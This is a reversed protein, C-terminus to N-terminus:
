SNESVGEFNASLFRKTADPLPGAASDLRARTEAPLVLIPDQSPEVSSMWQKVTLVVDSDDKKAVKLDSEDIQGSVIDSRRCFRWLHNAHPELHTSVLGSISIGSQAFWTQFNWTNPIIEVILERKLASTMNKSMYDQLDSLDEISDAQKILSSLTSFRQDLENKTHSVQLYHCEISKFVKGTLYSLFLGFHQNKSERTTNDVQVILNDPLCRDPHLKRQALDLCRALLKCNMNSDKPASTPMLFYIEQLGWTIAGTVHLAPRWRKSMESTGALTKHRPLCFKAQDMGDLMIKMFQESKHEPKFVKDQSAQKNTRNNVSRDQRVRELHAHREVDVQDRDAKTSCQAREESLRACINCKTGEAVDKFPLYKSWRKYSRQFTSRSVQGEKPTDHVYFEFFDLLKTFNVYKKPANRGKGREVNLSIGYLPHSEDEVLENRSDAELVECDDIALPEALHMYVDLFWVDLADSQKAERPLRPAREPLTAHGTRVLKIMKDITGPHSQFCHTQCFGRCVSQGFMTWSLQRSKSSEGGNERFVRKIEEFIKEQREKVSLSQVNNVRWQLAQERLVEVCRKRCCVADSASAAADKDDNSEVPSPLSVSAESKADETQVDSPLSIEDAHRAASM